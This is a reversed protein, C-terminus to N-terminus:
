ETIETKVPVVDVSAYLPQGPEGETNVSGKLNNEVISGQDTSSSRALQGSDAEDCGWLGVSACLSLILYFARRQPRSDLCM